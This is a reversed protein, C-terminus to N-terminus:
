KSERELLSVIYDFLGIYTKVEDVGGVSVPLSLIQSGTKEALFKASRSEYYNAQIILKAKETKMADVVRALHKPTPPIGPVLEILAVYQIGFRRFLYSWSRHYATVKLGNLLEMRRGWDLIKANLREAFKKFSKQFFNKKDPVLQTLRDKILRAVHIGNVPDLLYHPNGFPHIDGMSRDLMQPIEIPEIVASANLHGPQGVMVNPNRAGQILLPLWGVELEMGQYILLDARNLRLMYSPKAAIHHADQYGRTLTKVRVEDGGIEKTLAALDETTTVVQLAAFAPASYFFCLVSVAMLFFARMKKDM